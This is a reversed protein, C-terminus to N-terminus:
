LKILGYMALGADGYIQPGPDCKNELGFVIGVLVAAVVAGADADAGAVRHEIRKEPMGTDPLRLATTRNNAGWSVTTPANAGPQFRSRSANSPAFVPMNDKMTALLGGLSWRLADSMVEDKKFFVNRGEADELHVHVHLGSGPQDAFPRASFDASSLLAKCWETHEIIAAAGHLPPLAIEYQNTGREAEWKLIHGSLPQWFTDDPAAPLYFEIETALIPTYGFREKLAAEAALAKPM